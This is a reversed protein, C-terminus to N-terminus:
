KGQFEVPMGVYGPPIDGIKIKTSDYTFFTPTADVKDDNIVIEISHEGVLTAMFECTFIDAEQNLKLENSIKKSNM